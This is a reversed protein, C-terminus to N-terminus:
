GNLSIRVNNLTEKAWSMHSENPSTSGTRRVAANVSAELCKFLQQTAECVASITAAVSKGGLGTVHLYERMTKFPKEVARRLNTLLLVQAGVVICIRRCVFVASMITAEAIFQGSLQM